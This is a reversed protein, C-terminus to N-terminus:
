PETLKLYAWYAIMIADSRGSHKKLTVPAEPWLENVRALSPKDSSKYKKRLLGPQWEQPRPSCWALDLADLLMLWGGFNSGFTFASGSGM